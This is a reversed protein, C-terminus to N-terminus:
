PKELSALMAQARKGDETNRLDESGLMERLVEGAKGPEALRELCEARRLYGKATWDRYRSYMVYIREYYAAATDYRRRLRACEGRGYLAAPWLPGRWERVGLISEYCKDAEDYRKQELYLNGLLLLAEAAVPDAAFLQRIVNLHGEAVAYDQRAAAQRGLFMRASLGYETEPFDRLIREAAQTALPLQHRKAAEDMMWELVVAPAVAVNEERLLRQRLSDKAEDTAGPRFFFGRALRLFLAPKKETEARAMLAGLENWAADAVAPPMKKVHGIWEDLILDIGLARRDVGYTELSERYCALAAERQGMEWQARGIWYIALPLNVGERNEQVYPRLHAIIGAFDKQDYLMEAARFACYNYLEINLEHKMAERYRAVATPLEGRVGAIDGQMMWAEGQLKSAPFDRVFESLEAAAATFNGLGYRCVAHRFAADGRYVSKPYDTIFAKFEPMAAEYGKNFLLAMGLWYSAEERRDHQPYESNLRRLWVVSEPYNEEMFYAYGILFMCEAVWEHKPRVKLVATLHAIVKPWAKEMAHLHGITLTVQDYYKGQPYEGMYDGGIKFADNWPQIHVACQFALFLSEEATGGGRQEHLDLFLVRGEWVRRTELYARAIRFQLQQGYDEIGALTKLEAELEAIYEQTRLLERYHGDGSQRLQDAQKQLRALHRKSRAEILAKPFVLRYVWLANRYADEAFLGDAAELAALSFATSRAALSNPRLLFPVQGYVKDLQNGKLYAITLLTAAWNARLDDPAIEQLERLLPTASKWDDQALACRALSAFVDARWDSDLAFTDLVQTYADVAKPYDHTFRYGDGIYVSAEISHASRPYKKLYEEFAKNAESFHGLLFHCLGFHYYTGEMELAINKSKSDSFWTILQQLLPLASEYQGATLCRNAQVRTERPGLDANGSDAAALAASGALLVFVSLIGLIKKM